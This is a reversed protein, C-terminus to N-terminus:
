DRGSIWPYLTRSRIFQADLIKAFNPAQQPSQSQHITSISYNPEGPSIRPEITAIHDSDIKSRSDGGADGSLRLSM